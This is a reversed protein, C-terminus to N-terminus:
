TNDSPSLNEKVPDSINNPEYNKMFGPINEKKTNAELFDCCMCPILSFKLCLLNYKAPAGAHLLDPRKIIHKSFQSGKPFFGQATRGPSGRGGRDWAATPPLARIQPNITEGGRRSLAPLERCKQRTHRSAERRKKSYQETADFADGGRSATGPQLRCKWLPQSM